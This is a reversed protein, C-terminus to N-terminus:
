SGSTRNIFVHEEDRSSCLCNPAKNTVEAKSSRRSSDICYIMSTSKERKLHIILECLNPQLPLQKAMWDGMGNGSDQVVVRIEYPPFSFSAVSISEGNLTELDERENALTLPLILNRKQSMNMMGFRLNDFM